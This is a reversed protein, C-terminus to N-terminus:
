PKLKPIDLQLYKHYRRKHNPFLDCHKMKNHISNALYHDKNSETLEGQKPDQQLRQKWNSNLCSDHTTNTDRGSYLLFLPLEEADTLLARNFDM